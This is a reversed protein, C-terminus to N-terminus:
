KIKDVLYCIAKATIETGPQVVGESPGSEMAFEKKEDCGLIKGRDAVRKLHSDSSHLRHASNNPGRYGKSKNACSPGPESLQNPLQPNALAEMSNSALM